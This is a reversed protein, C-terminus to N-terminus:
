WFIMDIKSNQLPWFYKCIKWGTHLCRKMLARRATFYRVNQTAAQKVQAVICLPAKQCLKTRYGNTIKAEYINKELNISCSRFKSKTIIFPVLNDYSLTESCPVKICHMSCSLNLYESFAVFIQFFRGSQESTVLTSWFIHSIKKL